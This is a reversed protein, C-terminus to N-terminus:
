LLAYDKVNPDEKEWSSGIGDPEPDFDRHQRRPDQDPPLSLNLNRRAVMMLCSCFPCKDIMSPNDAGWEKKCRQCEMRYFCTEPDNTEIKTPVIGYNDEYDGQHSTLLTIMAAMAIDDKKGREAGTKASDVDKRFTKIQDLFRDDRAYLVGDKLWRDMTVILKPKTAQSTLWHYSGSVRNIEQGKRRYINPYSLNNLLQDATSNGPTNYEVAIQADNFWRGLKALEYTFNLPDILNTVLTAVHVDECGKAGIRNVWAVSDDSGRGYGVDVGICYTANLIPEEWISLHHPEGRHFMACGKLHCKRELDGDDYGHFLGHKDFFGKKPPPSKQCFYELNEISKESFVPDGFALFAEEVTLALEQKLKKPDTATGRKKAMFYLQKDTLRYIRLLGRKCKPCAEGHLDKGGIRRFFYKLCNTENCRVWNSETVEIMRKEEQGHVWGSPPALVRTKEFFYPFFQAEWESDEGREICKKYFEHAPTGAGEATSELIGVTEPSNVLAHELHVELAKNFDKWKTFESGHFGNLSYGQGLGGKGTAWRIRLLSNLGIGGEKIPVDYTIGEDIKFSSYRPKLFWPLKRYMPQINRNFINTTQDEDESAILCRRNPKFTSIWFMMATGFLSMGLQRAKIIIIRQAKGRSKMDLMKELALEQGPWLSYLLENGEKDNIWLFNTAAYVFSAKIKDLENLILREEDKNLLTWRKDGSTNDSKDDRVKEFKGSHFYEFLESVFKDRGPIKFQDDM